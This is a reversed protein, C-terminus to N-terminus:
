DHTHMLFSPICLDPLTWLKTRIHLTLCFCSFDLHTVTLFTSDTERRRTTKWKWTCLCFTVTSHHWIHVTYYHKSQETSSGAHPKTKTYIQTHEHQLTNTIISHKKVVGEQGDSDTSQTWTRLHPGNVQGGTTSSSSREDPSLASSPSLTTVSPWM